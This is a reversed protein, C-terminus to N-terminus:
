GAGGSDGLAEAIAADLPLARGQARLREFADGPLGARIQAVIRDYDPQDVPPLAQGLVERLGDSAGLLRAAREPDGGACALAALGLLFDPIRGASGLRYRLELAERYLRGALATDGTLRALDALALSPGTALKDGLQRRLHLSEEVLRQAAAFDGRYRAVLGLNDISLSAGRADGIARRLALSEQHLAEARALDGRMRVVEGLGDLSRARSQTEDLREWLALAEEFRREAREYAGQYGLVVGLNHLALAVEWDTAHARFLDLAEDYLRAPQASEGRDMLVTALNNLSIGVGRMDGLERRLALAETHLAESVALDGQDRALNGAANLAEARVAAPLDVDWALAAELWRRGESLHGRMIWFRGLATALRFGDARRASHHAAWALAARLNDHDQELRGLWYQQAPGRLEQAAQTAISLCWRLHSDRLADRESAEELCQAAFQRIPELMRYRTSGEPGAEAVVLSQEVLSALLDVVDDVAIEGGAAVAEAADLSWGGAFVSLRRFLAQEAPGLLRYSWGIAAAMTQQRQPLDRSGGVLLPLLSDIRALLETPTLARVRAAVLELALPLGDLRRCIAAVAACNAQTLRFAPAAAQARELFLRVSGVHAVDDLVPVRSLDPLALPRVPYEHEARIRLPARSTGMVTLSPCAALLDAIEPAADLLHELNDLVLLWPQPALRAVLLERVTAAGGETLGLAQAISALVLAPDSLPALPVFGVGGPIGARLHHAVELALRTKGVGGPGTLTVMRAVGARLLDGLEALEQERGILPTPPAPLAPTNAPPQEPSRERPPMTGALEARAADSLGLADALARITHPYPRQRRGRELAGIAKASLGAREALEEQTLGAAERLRRLRQGFSSRDDAAVDRGERGRGLRRAPM